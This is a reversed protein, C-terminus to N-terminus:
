KLLPRWAGTTESAQVQVGYQTQGDRSTLAATIDTAGSVNEASGDVKLTVPIRVDDGRTVIIM